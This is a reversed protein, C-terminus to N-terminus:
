KSVYIQFTTDFDNSKICSLRDGMLLYIQDPCNPEHSLQCERVILEKDVDIFFVVDKTIWYLDDGGSYLTQCKFHRQLPSEKKFIEKWSNDKGIRLVYLVGLIEICDALFLKFKSSRPVRAITGQYKFVTPRQLSIPYYPLRLWCKLLPNVFFIQNSSNRLLLMGDCTGIIHGMRQPTGLNTRQFQGSVYNKFELFYSSGPTTHNEVYLGLTSHARGRRRRRECAEAFRSSAITEAWSKCVYRISNFLCNVPVFTFIHFRLDELLLPNTIV